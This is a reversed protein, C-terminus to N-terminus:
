PQRGCLQLWKCLYRHMLTKTETSIHYTVPSGVAGMVNYANDTKTDAYKGICCATINSCCNNGCISNNENPKTNICPVDRYLQLKKNTDEWTCTDYEDCLGFSHGIEHALAEPKKSCSGGGIYSAPGYIDSTYGCGCTAINQTWSDIGVVRYKFIPVKNIFSKGPLTMGYNQQHWDDVFDQVLNADPCDTKTTTFGQPITYFQTTSLNSEQTAFEIYTATRNLFEQDTPAYNIPVIFIQIRNKGPTYTLKRVDLLAKKQLPSQPKPQQQTQQQTPEKSAPPTELTTDQQQLTTLPKTTQLYMILIAFLLSILGIIIYLTVQAQRM